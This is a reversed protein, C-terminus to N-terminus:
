CQCHRLAWILLAVGSGILGGSIAAVYAALKMVGRDLDGFPDNPDYIMPREGWMGVPLSDNVELQHYIASKDM